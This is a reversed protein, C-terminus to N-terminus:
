LKDTDLPHIVFSSSAHFDHLYLHFYFLDIQLFFPCGSVFCMIDRIYM